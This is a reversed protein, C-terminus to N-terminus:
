IKKFASLAVARETFIMLFPTIILNRIIIGFSIHAINEGTIFTRILLYEILMALMYVIFIRSIGIGKILNYLEKFHFAFRLKGNHKALNILSFFLLLFVFGIIIIALIICILFSEPISYAISTLLFLIILM